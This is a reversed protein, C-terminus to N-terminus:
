KDNYLAKSNRVQVAGKTNLVYSHVHTAPPVSQPFTVAMILGLQIFNQNPLSPKFDFHREM